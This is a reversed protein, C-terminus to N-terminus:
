GTGFPGPADSHEETDWTTSETGEQPHRDSQGPKGEAADQEPHDNSTKTTENPTM